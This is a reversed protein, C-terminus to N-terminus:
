EVSPLTDEKLVCYFSEPDCRYAVGVSIGSGLRRDQGSAPEPDCQSEDTMFNGSDDTEPAGEEDLKMCPVAPALALVRYKVTCTEGAENRRTDTLEASVQTGLLAADVYVQVDSWRLEVDVAPQGPVSEDEETDPDDPVAPAEELVIHATSLEPVSCFGADDPEPGSFDGLAYPKEDASNDIGAMEARALLEGFEATKVGISGKGYDPQGDAGREFYPTIGLEPNGRYADNGVEDCVGDASEERDKEVLRM